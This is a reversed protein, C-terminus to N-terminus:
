SDKKEKKPLQYKPDPKYNPVPQAFGAMAAAWVEVRLADKRLGDIADQLRRYIDERVPDQASM